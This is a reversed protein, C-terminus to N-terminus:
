VRYGSAIDLLVNPTAFRQWETEDGGIGHLLYLVPYKKDKSYGPPAYVQMKRTAGVSKSEYSVMELRGHPIGDRQTNFGAPPDPFVQKDDPTLTIPRGFGRPGGPGRRPPADTAAPAASPPTAAAALLPLSATTLTM